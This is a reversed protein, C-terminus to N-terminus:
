LTKLLNRYKRPLKERVDRSELYPRIDPVAGETVSASPSFTLSEKECILRVLEHLQPHIRIQLKNVAEQFAENKSDFEAEM